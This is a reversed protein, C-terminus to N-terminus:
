AALLMHDPVLTTCGCKSKAMKSSSSPSCRDPLGNGKRVADLHTVKTIGEVGNRGAARTYCARWIQCKYATDHGEIDLDPPTEAFGGIAPAAGTLELGEAMRTLIYATGNLFAM